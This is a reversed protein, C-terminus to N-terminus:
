RVTSVCESRSSRVRSSRGEVADRAWSRTGTSRFRERCKQCFIERPANEARWAYFHQAAFRRGAAMIKLVKAKAVLVQPWPYQPSQGGAVIELEKALLGFLQPSQGGALIELGMASAPPWPHQPSQGGTCTCEAEHVQYPQASRTHYCSEKAFSRFRM